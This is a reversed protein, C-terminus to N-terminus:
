HHTVQDEGAENSDGQDDDDGRDGLAPLLLAMLEPDAKIAAEMDRRTDPGVIHGVFPDLVALTRARIRNILEDDDSM